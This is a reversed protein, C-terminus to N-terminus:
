LSERYVRHRHNREIEAEVCQKRAVRWAEVKLSLSNHHQDCGCSIFADAAEAVLTARADLTAQAEEYLQDAAIFRHYATDMRSTM